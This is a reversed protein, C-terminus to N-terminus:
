VHDVQFRPKICLYTCKRCETPNGSSYITENISILGSIIESQLNCCRTLQWSHGRDWLLAASSIHSPTMGRTLLFMSGRCKHWPATGSPIPLSSSHTVLLVSDAMMRWSLLRLLIVTAWTFHESAGKVQSWHLPSCTHYTKKWLSNPFHKWKLDNPCSQWM